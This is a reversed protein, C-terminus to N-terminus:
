GAQTRFENPLSHYLVADNNTAPFDDLILVQKKHPCDVCTWREWSKKVVFDLCQRYNPCTTNRYGGKCLPNPGDARGYNKLRIVKSKERTRM